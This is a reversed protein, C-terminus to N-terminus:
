PKLSVKQFLEKALRAKYDKVITNAYSKIMTSTPALMVCGKLETAIQEPEWKHNELVQSLSVININEGRDYMALMEAFADQCFESAFMEPKLINYVTYLSENDILVCGLVGVEAETM